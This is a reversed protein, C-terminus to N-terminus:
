PGGSGYFLKALNNSPDPPGEKRGNAAMLAGSGDFLKALNNSPDPPGELRGIAAKLPVLVM